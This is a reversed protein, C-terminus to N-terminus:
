DCIFELVSNLADEIIDKSSEAKVANEYLYNLLNKVFFESDSINHYPFIFKQENKQSILEVGYFKKLNIQTETLNYLIRETQQIQGIKSFDRIYVNIITM